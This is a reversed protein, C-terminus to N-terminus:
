CLWAKSKYMSAIYKGTNVNDHRHHLHSNKERRNIWITNEESGIIKVCLCLKVKKTKTYM